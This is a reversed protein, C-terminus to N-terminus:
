VVDMASDYKNCGSVFRLLEESAVTKERKGIIANTHHRDVARPQLVVNSLPKDSLFHEYLIPMSLSHQSFALLLDSTM